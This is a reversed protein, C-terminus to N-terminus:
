PNRGDRRYCLLGISVATVVVLWKVNLGSYWGVKEKEIILKESILNELKKELESVKTLMERVREALEDKLIYIVDKENKWENYKIVIGDLEELKQKLGRMEREKLELIVRQHNGTAELEEVKRILLHKERELSAIKQNLDDFEGIEDGM